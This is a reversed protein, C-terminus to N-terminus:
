YFLKNHFFSHLIYYDIEYNTKINILQNNIPLKVSQYM